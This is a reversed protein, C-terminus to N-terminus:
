NEKGKVSSSFVKRFSFLLRSDLAEVDDAIECTRVLPNLKREILFELEWGRGRM